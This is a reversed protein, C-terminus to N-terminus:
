RISQPPRVIERFIIKSLHPVQTCGLTTDEAKYIVGMVGEGLGELIKHPRATAEAMRKMMEELSSYFSEEGAGGSVAVDALRQFYQKFINEKKM